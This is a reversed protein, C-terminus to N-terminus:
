NVDVTVLMPWAIQAYPHSSKLISDVLQIAFILGYTNKILTALFSQGIQAQLRCYLFTDTTQRGGVLLRPM